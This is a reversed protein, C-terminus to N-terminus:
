HTGGPVYDTAVSGRAQYLVFDGNKFQYSNGQHDKKTNSFGELRWMNCYGNKENYRNIYSLHSTGNSITEVDFNVIIYGETLWFKEKYHIGKKAYALVDFGKPVVHVKAPIYYEGYWKQVSKVSEKNVYSGVFTRQHPPLTIDAFTYAYSSIAKMQKELLGSISCTDKIEQNTINTYKSGLSLKKKNLADKASGMKVLNEQKGNITETYYLDVAQRSQGRKDVFYFRPKIKIYSNKNWMDGVTYLSYRTFYGTAIAGTNKKTPHSGNLIPMTMQTNQKTPKGNKNNTGVTYTAGTPKLSNPKRFVSQWLPYDSIDYLSLGFVRGSVEVSVENTATYNTRDYNGYVETKGRKSTATGNISISRFRVIHQGEKVWTPLYFETINDVDSWTNKGVLKENRYTDFPFKVQRRATYKKYDRYGYGTIYQHEGVSPYYVNFKQNLIIGSMSPNPTIMQNFAKVDQISPNSVVPTHIVVDNVAEIKYTLTKGLSRGVSAICNYTVSGNSEYIGNSKTGEITLHAQYFVNSGIASGFPIASPKATGMNSWTDPMITKGNVILLDNRVKINGVTTGGSNPEVMNENHIKYTVSPKLYHASPKLSITKGPLSGNNIRANTLEYVNLERIKWYSYERTIQNTTAIPNTGKSVTVQTYEKTGYYRKFQYSMLYDDTVVNVYQDESTPIGKTSDFKEQGRDDAQIIAAPVPPLLEEEMQDTDNSSTDSFWRYVAVVQLGGAPVEFSRKRIRDLDKIYGAYNTRPNITTTRIDRESGKNSGTEVYHVRYLKYQKGTKRSTMTQPIKTGDTKFITNTKQELYKETKLNTKVNNNTEQFLIQVPQNKPEYKIRIDFRDLFDNPKKWPEANMIGKLTRYIRGTGKGNKNVQIIGNLYVFGGSKALSKSDVLAKKFQEAVKKEPFIFTVYTNPGVVVAQKEGTSLLFEGKVGKTPDGTPLCPDRKVTFGETSWSVNATATRDTVPGYIVKGDEMYADNNNSKASVPVASILLIVVTLMIVYIM